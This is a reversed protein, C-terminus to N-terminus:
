EDSMEQPANEITDSVMLMGEEENWGLTQSRPKQKVAMNALLQQNLLSGVNCRGRSNLRRLLIAPNEM